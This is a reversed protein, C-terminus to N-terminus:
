PFWQSALQADRYGNWAAVNLAVGCVLVANVIVRRSQSWTKAARSLAILCCALVFAQFPVAYYWLQHDVYEYIAPHRVVMGAFMVLQGVGVCLWLLAIGSSLRAGAF